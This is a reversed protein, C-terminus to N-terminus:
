RLLDQLAQLIMALKKGAFGVGMEEGDLILTTNLYASKISAHSFDKWDLYERSGSNGCFYVGSSCIALGKKWGTVNYILFIDENNPIQLNKRMEAVKKTSNLVPEGLEYDDAMGFQVCHCARAIDNVSLLSNKRGQAERKEDEDNDEFMEPNYIHNYFENIGYVFKRFAAAFAMEDGVGTLFIKDSKVGDVTILYMVNALFAKGVEVDRLERLEFEKQGCSNYCYVFRMNTIVFGEKLTGKGAYDFVLLPKEDPNGSMYYDNINEKIERTVPDKGLIYLASGYKYFQQRKNFIDKFVFEAFGSWCIDQQKANMNPFDAVLETLNEYNGVLEEFTM